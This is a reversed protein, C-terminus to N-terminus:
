AIHMDTQRVENIGHVDLLQCFYNKWSNLISPSDTLLNKEDEALNTRPQYSLRINKNQSNTEIENIKEELYKEKKNRFTTSIEYRVNNLNDGNTKSQNQLCQLKTQKRKIYYNQVSLWVM